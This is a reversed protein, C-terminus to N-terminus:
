RLVVLKEFKDATDGDTTKIRLKYVYVGKGIKDGFDDLGDWELGEFRYGSPTTHTSLTKILKGSVTFIQVQIDMAVFPRNHEFMFMTHTTFPNPYNLVHDLALKADESVIFDTTAETSNNFVDWVKLSVTHPGAELDKLRYYVKGNTYSNLDNEYYDNLIYHRETKNDLEATMDHGIGTGVTNVGSSDSILAYIYPNKDTMGGRVFKEDNMYLRIQPGQSDSGSNANVGGVTITTDFGNADVSFNTAYYSIKGTGYQYSIDKPVYFTFSFLGNHVSARGSYIVNKQLKFPQAMSPNSPDNSDNGITYITLPKDFVTPNVQGNFNSLINGSLDQVEGTVIVKSLAKLTDSTSGAPDGNISTTKVVYEPYALRVAPDGILIFNRVYMDSAMDVKTREFIEGTTLYENNQKEFIHNYFALCLNNNSSSFALRSTTFMCISGGNPNLFVYEGASTRAPDDVRTFECTATLFGALKDFNSWGLIDNNELFREHGWGLEGGHGIYTILLTGNQVRDIIAQHGDPYRQGGPTSVQQYADLYIKDINYPLYTRRVREALTDSQRFHVNYDQDDAVFSIINRWSGLCAPATVYHQIKNLAANAEDGSKVPLRGIALDVTEGNYWNGENDDLLGFFDDSIYTQTNNTSGPSQYSTVFNTNGPIRYKNDYSADGFLLLFRPMDSASAARDYFMKTFDRIASVDQSGSSYENFIQHTTVVNVTLNDHTRHFDALANAQTWFYPSTVILMNAQPLAHLNQNSIRGAAIPNLYQTGDFVLYEHIVDSAHGFQAASGNISFQQDAVNVPDTVDWIKDSSSIGSINFLAVNGAGVSRQDRFLMQSGSGNFDLNRRYNLEVYNVWGQGAPDTSNFYFTTTTTSSVSTTSYNIAVMNCIPDQPATGVYQFSQSQLSSGNLSLSFSHSGSVTARGALSSRIFMTDSGIVNPTTFNFSISNNLNDIQEGLWERGSMLLNYLDTEHYAYDDFSNVNINTNADSAQSQIRKGNQQGYTLFFYTSDSYYNIQHTFQRNLSDYKWRTQATGYFLIYDTSDFKSDAEGSVLIANENLDDARPSSNLFPLMGGGNGYLQITHPDISDIPVGLNKLFSYTIKYVGNQTVAIRYWDGSALVSSPKYYRAQIRNAQNTGTSMNVTFSVLKEFNGNGTSRVPLISIWSYPQKKKYIVKSQVRFNNEVNQPFLILDKEQLPLVSTPQISVSISNVGAPLPESIVYEPLYEENFAAKSFNLSRFVSGDELTKEFPSLWNITYSNKLPAGSFALFPLFLLVIQLSWNLRNRM